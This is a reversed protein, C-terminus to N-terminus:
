RRGPRRAPPRGKYARQILESIEKRCKPDSSSLQKLLMVSFNKIDRMEPQDQTFYLVFLELVGADKLTDIGPVDISINLVALANFVDEKANEDTIPVTKPAEDKFYTVIVKVGDLKRLLHVNAPCAKLAYRLAALCHSRLEAATSRNRFLNLIFELGGLEGIQQHNHAFKCFNTIIQLSLAQIDPDVSTRLKNILLPVGKSSYFELAFWNDEDIIHDPAKSIMCNRVAMMATELVDDSVDDSSSIISMLHQFLNWHRIAQLAMDNESIIALLETAALQGEQNESFLLAPLAPLIEGEECLDHVLHKDNLIYVSIADIRQIRTELDDSRAAKMAEKFERTHKVKERYEMAMYAM